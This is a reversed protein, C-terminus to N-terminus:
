VIRFGPTHQLFRACECKRRTNNARALPHARLIRTFLRYLIKNKCRVFQASIKRVSEISTHKSINEASFLPIPVFIDIAFRHDNEMHLHNYGM